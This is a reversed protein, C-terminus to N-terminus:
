GGPPPPAPAPVQTCGSILLSYGMGQFINPPADEQTTSSVRVGTPLAAVTEIFAGLGLPDAGGFTRVNVPSPDLDAMGGPVAFLTGGPIGNRAVYVCLLLQNGETPTMSPATVDMPNGVNPTITVATAGYVSPSFTPVQTSFPVIFGAASVAGGGAAWTFTHVMPVAAEAATVIRSFFAVRDEEAGSGYDGLANTGGPFDALITDWNAPIAPTIVSVAGPAVPSNGEFPAYTIACAVILLDGAAVGAPTAFSMTTVFDLAM